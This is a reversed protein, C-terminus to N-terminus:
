EHFRSTSKPNCLKSVQTQAPHLLVTTAFDGDDLFELLMLSVCSPIERATNSDSFVAPSTEGIDVSGCRNTKAEDRNGVELRVTIEVLFIYLQSLTLM